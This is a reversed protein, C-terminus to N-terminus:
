RFCKVCSLLRKPCGGRAKALGEDLDAAWEASIEEALPQLREGVLIIREAECQRLLDTLAPIDMGECVTEADEGVVVTLGEGKALDLAKQVDGAKLGSNSCDFLVTGGDRLIKMRGSFGAFGSLSRAIEGATLGCEWAAAAAAAIATEYSPFHLSEDTKLQVSEGAFILAGPRARVAGGSAFTVDSSLRADANCLIKAGRKALSLMQLKATSAWKTGGAILYDGTLSTIIGYDALGTGGLSVEAVLADAREAEAADVAAIVSGPTISLGSRLLRPRGEEWIELGRTTHSLVGKQSSLILSLLLASTTKSHMGTVEFVQLAPLSRPCLLEGVAQHHTIIRKKERRAQALAPNRPSLHVPCAVLDYGSIDPTHHYVELPEAQLGSEVMRAAIIGGGHITDLVAVRPGRGGEQMGTGRHM